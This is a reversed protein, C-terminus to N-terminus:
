RHGWEGCVGWFFLFSIVLIVTAGKFAWVIALGMVVLVDKGELMFADWLRLQTSFPVVNAYLTIYWKTAYASIHVGHENELVCNL